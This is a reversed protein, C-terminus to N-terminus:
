RQLRRYGCFTKALTRFCGLKRVTTHRPKEMFTRFRQSIKM